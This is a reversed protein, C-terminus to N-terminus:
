KYVINATTSPPNLNWSISLLNSTTNMHLSGFNQPMMASLVSQSVNSVNIPESILSDVEYNPTTPTLFFNNFLYSKLSTLYDQFDKDKNKAHTINNVMTNRVLKDSERVNIVKNYTISSISIKTVLFLPGTARVERHNCVYVRRLVGVGQLFRVSARNSYASIIHRTLDYSPTVCKTTAPKHFVCHVTSGQKNM